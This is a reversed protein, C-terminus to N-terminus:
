VCRGLSALYEDAEERTKFIIIKKSDQYKAFLEYTQPLKETAFNLTKQELEKDLEDAVWPFDERKQGLRENIGALCVELPYDLLFVTDCARLRVELTRQYNGDLIWAERQLIKALEADFEDRPIVTKDDRHYLLDLHVLPLKTVKSLKQAFVSKGAGPSGIVLVKQMKATKTLSEQIKDELSM